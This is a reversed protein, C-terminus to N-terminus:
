RPSASESAPRVIEFSSIPRRIRDHGFYVPRDLRLSPEFIYELVNGLIVGLGSPVDHGPYVFARLHQYIVGFDSVPILGGGASDSYQQISVVTDRVEDLVVIVGVNKTYEM